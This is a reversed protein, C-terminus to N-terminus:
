DFGFLGCGSNLPNTFAATANFSFYSLLSAPQGLSAQNTFIPPSKRSFKPINM